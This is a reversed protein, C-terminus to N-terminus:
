IKGANEGAGLLAEVLGQVLQDKVRLQADQSGPRIQIGRPLHLFYAPGSPGGRRAHRQPAQKQLNHPPGVAPTERTKM